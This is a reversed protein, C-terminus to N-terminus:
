YRDFLLSSQYYAQIYPRTLYYLMAINILISILSGPLSFLGTVIGIVALIITIKRAWSKGNWLGWTMVFGVVGLILLVLGIGVLFATTLAFFSVSTFASAWPIEQFAAALEEEPILGWGGSALFASLVLLAAGGLLMFLSAIGELITLITIGSPRSGRQIPIPASPPSRTSPTVQTGCSPCFVSDSKLVAGCKACNSM